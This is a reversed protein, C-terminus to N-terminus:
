SSCPRGERAPATHRMIQAGDARLQLRRAPVPASKASTDRRRHGSLRQTRMEVLDAGPRALPAGVRPDGVLELHGDLLDRAELALAPRSSSSGPASPAAAPKSSSMSRRASSSALDGGLELLGLAPAELGLLGLGGLRSRRAASAASRGLSRALLRRGLAAARRPPRARRPRAARAARELAGEVVALLAVPQPEVRRDDVVRDVGLVPGAVPRDVTVISSSWITM